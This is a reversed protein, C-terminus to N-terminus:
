GKGEREWGEGGILGFYTSFCVQDLVGRVSEEVEMPPEKVGVSDAFAQGNGTKVWGPHLCLTVM